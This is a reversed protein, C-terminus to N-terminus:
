VTEVGRLTLLLWALMLTLSQRDAWAWRRIKRGSGGDRTAGSPECPAGQKTSGLLSGEGCASEFSRSAGRMHNYNGCYSERPADVGAVAIVLAM